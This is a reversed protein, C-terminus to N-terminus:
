NFKKEEGTRETGGKREMTEEEKRTEETQLQRLPGVQRGPRSNVLELLVGAAGEEESKRLKVSGDSRGPLPVDNEEGGDKLLQRTFDLESPPADSPVVGRKPERIDAVVVEAPVAAIKRM